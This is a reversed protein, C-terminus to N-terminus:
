RTFRKEAWRTRCHTKKSCSFRHGGSIAITLLEDNWYYHLHWINFAFGEGNM